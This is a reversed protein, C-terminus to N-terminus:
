HSGEYLKMSMKFTFLSDVRGRSNQMQPRVSNLTLVHPRVLDSLHRHYSFVTAERKSAGEVEVLTSEDAVTSVTLGTLYLGNYAKQCFTSAISATQRCAGHELRLEREVSELSDLERSLSLRTSYQQQFSELPEELTSAWLGAIGATIGLLLTLAMLVTVLLRGSNLAVRLTNATKGIASRHSLAKLTKQRRTKTRLLSGLLKSNGIDAGSTGDSVYFGPKPEVDEAHYIANLREFLEGSDEHAQAEAVTGFVIDGASAFVAYCTEGSPMMYVHTAPSGPDPVPGNLSLQSDLTAIDAVLIGHAQASDQLAKLYETGIAQWAFVTSKGTKITTHLFKLDDKRISKLKDFLQAPSVNDLRKFYTFAHDNYVLVKVPQGFYAKHSSLLKCHNVFAESASQGADTEVLVDLKGRRSIRVFEILKRGALIIYEAPVLALLEGKVLSGNTVTQNSM